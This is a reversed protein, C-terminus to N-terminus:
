RGREVFRGRGPAAVCEGAEVVVEGRSITVAPWGRVTIGEYSSFPLASHLTAADLEVERAPDFLVIDADAGPELRGKRDLGHIRAPATACADVWRPVDILGANVGFHHVLSLRTEIGSVGAPHADAQPVRPCHDSSVIDIEGRALARWLAERQAADRLPPRVAFSQARLDGGDRVSGDLVLGHSTVEGWVPQGHRRAWALERVAERCSIHFVLLRVGALGALAIGRNVAEAEGEPPCAEALWRPGTRGQAALEASRVAIVDDNEAHLVVLGDHRGIECMARFLAEDPIRYGPYSMYMKFSPVGRAVVAAIEDVRAPDPDRITMHLAYDIVAAGEADARRSELGDLLPEGVAPQAFDIVTTVGGFAAARTGSAFDDATAIAWPPFTPDDLHVHGDIAGPIVYRGSADLEREAPGLGTGIAAIRGGAVAVDAPAAGSANVVLGGRILLDYSV